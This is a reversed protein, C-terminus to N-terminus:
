SNLRSPPTALAQQETPERATGACGEPSLLSTALYFQQPRSSPLTLSLRSSTAHPLSFFNFM